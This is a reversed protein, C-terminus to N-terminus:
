QSFFNGNQLNKSERFSSFCLLETHYYSIGSSSSRNTRLDLKVPPINGLQVVNKKAWRCNKPRLKWYVPRAEDLM